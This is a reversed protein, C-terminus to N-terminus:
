NHDKTYDEKLITNEKALITLLVAHTVSECFSPNKEGTTKEKADPQILSEM